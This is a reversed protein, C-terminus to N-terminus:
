KGGGTPIRLGDLAIDVIGDRVGERGYRGVAWYRQPWIECLMLILNAVLEPDAKRFEGDKIGSSVINRFIQIYSDMHEVVRRRTKANLAKAERNMLNILSRFRDFRELNADIAARLRDAASGCAGSAEAVGQKIEELYSEFIQALLDDKSEIYQYISSVSLDSASAIDRMSANAFGKKAIIQAAVQFIRDRTSGANNRARAEAVAPQVAKGDSSRRDGADETLVMQTQTVIALRNDAEDFVTTQWLMTSRGVHLPVAEASLLGPRGARLFNTKSEVTTTSTREPLNMVSGIAGLADAFAMLVGGHIRGTSTLHRETADIEGAVLSKTARTVRLGLVSDFGDPSLASALFSTIEVM